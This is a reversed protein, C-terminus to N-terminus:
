RQRGPEPLARMRREQAREVAARARDGIRQRPLPLPEIRVGARDVTVAAGTQLHPQLRPLVHRLRAAQAVTGALGKHGAGDREALRIVSPASSGLVALNRVYDHDHTVVARGHEAAWLMIVPDPTGKLGVQAVHVVDHGQSRLRPVLKESLNEDLLLRSM